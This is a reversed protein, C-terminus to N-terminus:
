ISNQVRLMEQIYIQFLCMRVCVKDSNLGGASSSCNSWLYIVM